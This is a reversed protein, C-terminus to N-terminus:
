IVQREMEVSLHDRLIVKGTVRGAKRGKEKRHAIGSIQVTKGKYHIVRGDESKGSKRGWLM